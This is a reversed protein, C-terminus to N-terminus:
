NKREVVLLHSCTEIHKNRNANRGHIVTTILYENEIESSIQRSYYPYQAAPYRSISKWTRSSKTQNIATPTFTVEGLVDAKLACLACSLVPTLACAPVPHGPGEKGLAGGSQPARPSMLGAESCRRTAKGLFSTLEGQTSVTYRWYKM